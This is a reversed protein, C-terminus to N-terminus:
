HCRRQGGFIGCDDSRASGVQAGRQQIRAYFECQQGIKICSFSAFPIFLMRYFVTTTIILDGGCWTCFYSTVASVLEMSGWSISNVLPPNPTDAVATIWEVFPDSSITYWYITTVQPAIGMMYQVDLNGEFCENHLCDTTAHGFPSLADQRPLGYTDQFIHLDAPSFDENNTEFVAQQQTSAINGTFPSVNYLSNLFHVDVSYSSRLKRNSLHDMTYYKPKWVPPVQVTNFVASLHNVMHSPLSYHAARHFMKVESNKRSKRSHDAWEYFTTDLLKEWLEITATAKIYEQHASIWQVTINELSLWDVVATSAELNRSLEHVETFSLWKQYNRNGPTSREELLRDLESIGRQQIAFVLEHQVTPDSRSARAFTSRPIMRETVAHAANFAGVLLLFLVSLEMKLPPKM